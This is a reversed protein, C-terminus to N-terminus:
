KGTSPFISPASIAKGRTLGIIESIFRYIRKVNAIGRHSDHNVSHPNSM